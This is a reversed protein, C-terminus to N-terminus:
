SLARRRRPNAFEEAEKEEMRENFGTCLATGEDRMAISILLSPESTLSAGHSRPEPM